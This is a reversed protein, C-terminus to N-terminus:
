GIRWSRREVLQAGDIAQGAKLAAALATRDASITTKVRQFQEPLDMPQLDPDLDVATSKRSSLKHSPLEWKTAEPDVRGLAAVLQDQLAQARREAEDALERLRNAHERRADGTARLGDIVWCWADAKEALAKRNGAEATILQELAETAAAVDAPDDSFLGEAARDISAQLTRAEGTLDFLTASMHHHRSATSM